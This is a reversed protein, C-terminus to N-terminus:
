ILRNCMRAHTELILSLIIRGDVGLHGFHDKVILNKFYFKYNMEKNRHTSCASDVENKISLRYRIGTNV